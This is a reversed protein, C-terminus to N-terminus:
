QVILRKTVVKGDAVLSVNYIGNALHSIDLQTPLSMNNQAIITQGIANSVIIDYTSTNTANAATTRIDVFQTAPLPSLSFDNTNSFLENTNTTNTFDNLPMEIANLVSRMAVDSSYDTVFVVFSVHNADFNAPLTYNVEMNYPTNMMPNNPISGGMGWASPLVDRVVHRHAYGVVPNGLGFFPHGTTNNFYNSQNYGSGGTVNDEVVIVNFRYEGQATMMTNFTASLNLTVRRTTENYEGMIGVEVNATQNLQDDIKTQWSNTSLAVDQEGAFKVRDITATPAGFTFAAAISDITAFGMPDPIFGAHHSVWIVNSNNSTIDTLLATGNPCNGCGASTYKEVLVRKVAQANLTSINFIISFSVLSLILVKKM